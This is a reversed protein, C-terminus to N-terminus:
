RIRFAKSCSSKSGSPGSPCIVPRALRESLFFRHAASTVAVSDGKAEPDVASHRTSMAPLLCKARRELHSLSDAVVREVVLPNGPSNFPKALRAPQKSALLDPVQVVNQPRGLRYQLKPMTLVFVLHPEDHQPREFPGSM